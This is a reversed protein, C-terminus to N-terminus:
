LREIALELLPGNNLGCACAKDWHVTGSDGTVIGGWCDESVLELAALQGNQTGKRPLAKGTRPDIVFPITYVNFHYMGEPCESAAAAALESMGWATVIKETGMAAKFQQRWDGPLITGKKVGGFVAFVSNPSFAGTLGSKQFTQTLEWAHDFTGMFYISKGIYNNKINAIWNRIREPAENTFRGVDAACSAVVPDKLCEELTDNEAAKRLKSMAITMEPSVFSGFPSQVPNKLYKGELGDYLVQTIRFSRRPSMTFFDVDNQRENVDFLDPNAGALSDVILDRDAQSRPVFSLTGSTGSSHCIFINAQKYLRECWESLNECGTMEVSSLDYSTYENLWATMKDFQKNKLFSKDYSKYDGDSYLFPILDDFSECAAPDKEGLKKALAPIRKAQRALKRRAAELQFIEVDERELSRLEVESKFVLNKPSDLYEDLNLKKM